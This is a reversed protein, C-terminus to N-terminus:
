RGMFRRPWTRTYAYNWKLDFRYWSADKTGTVANGEWSLRGIPQVDSCYQMYKKSFGENNMLASALLFWVPRMELFHELMPHMIKADWPPNTIILDAGKLHKETLETYDLKVIGPAQPELDYRAVCTAAKGIGRVLHNGGACPECYTKGRIFHYIPLAGKLPTPYYNRPKIEFRSQKGM